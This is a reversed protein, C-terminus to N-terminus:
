IPNLMKASSRRRRGNGSESAQSESSVGPLRVAELILSAAAQWAEQKAQPSHCLLNPLIPYDHAERHGCVYKHRDPQEAAGRALARAIDEIGPRLIEGGGCIILTSPLTTSLEEIRRLLTGSDVGKCASYTLAIQDIFRASLFDTPDMPYWQQVATHPLYPSIMIAAKIHSALPPTRLPPSSTTAGYIEVLVHAVLAGGASDGALVIEGAGAADVLYQICKIVQAVQIAHDAAPLLTYGVSLFLPEEGLADRILPLLSGAASHETATHHCFGGGHVYLIALKPM